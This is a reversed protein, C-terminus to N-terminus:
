KEQVVPQISFVPHSSDCRAGSYSLGSPAGVPAADIVNSSALPVRLKSVSLAAVAAGGAFAVKMVTSRVKADPVRATSRIVGSATSAPTPHTKQLSPCTVPFRVAQADYEGGALLGQDRLTGLVAVRDRGAASPPDPALAALEKVKGVCAACDLDELADFLSGKGGGPQGFTIQADWFGFIQSDFFQSNHSEAYKCILTGLTLFSGNQRLTKM